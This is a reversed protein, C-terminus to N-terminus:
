ELEGVWGGGSEEETKGMLSQHSKNERELFVGLSFGEQLWVYHCSKITSKYEILLPIGAQGAKDFRKTLM